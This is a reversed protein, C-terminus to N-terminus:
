LALPRQPKGAAPLPHGNKAKGPAAHVASSQEARCSSLSRLVAARSPWEMSGTCASIVFGRGKASPPKPRMNWGTDLTETRATRGVRRSHKRASRGPPTSSVPRVVADATQRVGAFRRRHVRQGKVRQSGRRLHGLQFLFSAPYRERGRRHLLLGAPLRLRPEHQGDRRPCWRRRGGARACHARSKPQRRRGAPGLVPRNFPRIFIKRCKGKVLKGKESLIFFPIYSATRLAKHAPAEEACPRSIIIKLIAHYLWLWRIRAPLPEAKKHAAIQRKRKVLLRKQARGCRRWLKSKKLLTFM